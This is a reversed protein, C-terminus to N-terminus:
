LYSLASCTMAYAIHLLTSTRLVSTRATRALFGRLSCVKVGLRAAWRPLSAMPGIGDIFGQPLPLCHTLQVEM